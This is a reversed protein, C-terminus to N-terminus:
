GVDRGPLPVRRADRTMFPPGRRGPHGRRTRRAVGDPYRLADPGRTEGGRGGGPGPRGRVPETDPTVLNLCLLHRQVLGAEMPTGRAMARRNGVFVRHPRDRANRPANRVLLAGRLGAGSGPPAAGLLGRSNAPNSLIAEDPM